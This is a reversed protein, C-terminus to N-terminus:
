VLERAKELAELRTKFIHKEPLNQLIGQKELTEYVDKNAGSLFVERGADQTNIIIDEIARSSTFDILSVDSLDLLM